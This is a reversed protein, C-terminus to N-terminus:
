EKNKNIQNLYEWDKPEVKNRWECFQQVSEITWPSINAESERKEIFSILEPDSAMEVKFDKVRYLDIWVSSWYGDNRHRGIVVAREYHGIDYSHMPLFYVKENPAFHKTGRCEEIGKSSLKPADIIVASPCFCKKKIM